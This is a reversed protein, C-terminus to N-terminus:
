LRSFLGLVVILKEKMGQTEVEYGVMGEKKAVKETSGRYTFHEVNMIVMKPTGNTSITM